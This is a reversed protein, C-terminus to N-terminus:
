KTMVSTKFGKNPRKKPGCNWIAHAVLFPSSIDANMLYNIVNKDRKLRMRSDELYSHDIIGNTINFYKIHEKVKEWIVKIVIKKIGSLSILFHLM